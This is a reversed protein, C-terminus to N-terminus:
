IFCGIRCKVVFDIVEVDICFINFVMEKIFGFVMFNYWKFLMFKNWNKRCIGFVCGFLVIEMIFLVVNWNISM